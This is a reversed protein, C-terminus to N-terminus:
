DNARLEDGGNEDCECYLEEVGDKLSVQEWYKATMSAKAEFSLDKAKIAHLKKHFTDEAIAIRKQSRV